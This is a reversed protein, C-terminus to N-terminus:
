IPFGFIRGGVSDFGRIQNLYFKARNIVDALHGEHLIEHLDRWPPSGSLHTFYVCFNKYSDM